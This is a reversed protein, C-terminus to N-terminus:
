RVGVRDETVPAQVKVHHHPRPHNCSPTHGAWAIHGWFRRFIWYTKATTEVPSTLRPPRRSPIAALNCGRLLVPGRGMISVRIYLGRHAPSM